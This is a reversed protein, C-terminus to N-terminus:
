VLTVGVLIAARSFCIWDEHASPALSRCVCVTIDVCRISKGSRAVEQFRRVHDPLPALLQESAKIQLGANWYSGVHQCADNRLGKCSAKAVQGIRACICICSLQLAFAICAYKPAHHCFLCQRIPIGLARTFSKKSHLFQFSNHTILCVLM